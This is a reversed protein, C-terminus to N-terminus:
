TLNHNIFHRKHSSFLAINITQFKFQVILVFLSIYQELGGGGEVM